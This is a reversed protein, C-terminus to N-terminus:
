GGVTSQCFRAAWGLLIGVLLAWRGRSRWRLHAGSIAGRRLVDLQVLVLGLSLAVIAFGGPHMAFAEGFRGQAVMATARTLGCGPCALDGCLWGLPCFPGRVGLWTAAERSVTATAALGLLALPPVMALAALIRPNPAAPEM